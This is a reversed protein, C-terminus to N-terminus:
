SKSCYIHQTVDGWFPRGTSFTMKGTGITYLGSFTSMMDASVDISIGCIAM